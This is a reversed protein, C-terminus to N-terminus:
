NKSKDPQDDSESDDDSDAEMNNVKPQLPCDKLMHQKDCAFCRGAKYREIVEQKSLKFRKSLSEVNKYRREGNGRHSSRDNTNSHGTNSSTSSTSSDQQKNQRRFRSKLAAEHAVAVDLLQMLAGYTDNEAIFPDIIRNAKRAYSVEDQLRAPLGRIFWSAIADINVERTLTLENLLMYFREFYTEATEDYKMKINFLEEHISSANRRIYVKDLSGVFQDYTFRGKNMLQKL